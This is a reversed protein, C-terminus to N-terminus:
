AIGFKAAGEPSLERAVRAFTPHGIGVGAIITGLSGHLTQQLEASEGESLAHGRVDALTEV